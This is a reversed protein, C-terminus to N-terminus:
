DCDELDSPSVLSGYIDYVEDDITDPCIIEDDLLVNEIEFDKVKECIEEDPIQRDTEINIYFSLDDESFPFPEEEDFGDGEQAKIIDENLLDGVIPSINKPIKLRSYTFGASSSNIRYATLVFNDKEDFGNFERIRLIPSKTDLLFGTGDPYPTAREEETDVVASIDEYVSSSVFMNIPIQPISLNAVNQSSYFTSISSEVFNGAFLDVALASNNKSEHACTGMSENNTSITDDDVIERMDKIAVSSCTFKRINTEVGTINPNGKLIPTEETIRNHADNQTEEIGMAKCDYVVNQDFFKYSHPKLKGISLLYKGHPTLEIKMVEEKKDFFTM